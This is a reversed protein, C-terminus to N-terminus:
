NGLQILDMLESAESVPIEQLNQVMVGKLPDEVIKLNQSM